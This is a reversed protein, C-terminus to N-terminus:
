LRAGFKALKGYDPEEYKIDRAVNEAFGITRIMLRQDEEEPKPFCYVAMEFYELHKRTPDDAEMEALLEKCLIARCSRLCIDIDLRNNGSIVCPGGVGAPAMKDSIM